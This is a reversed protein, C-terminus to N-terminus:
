VNEKEEDAAGPIVPKIDYVRRMLVEIIFFPRSSTSPHTALGGEFLILTSILYTWIEERTLTFLRYKSERVVLTSSSAWKSDVADSFMCSLFGPGLRFLNFSLDVVSSRANTSNFSGLILATSGVCTNHLIHPCQIWSNLCISNEGALQLVCASLHSTRVPYTIKSIPIKFM